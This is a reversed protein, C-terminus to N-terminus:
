KWQPENTDNGQPLQFTTLHSSVEDMALQFYGYVADLKPISASPTQRIQKNRHLGHGAVSKERQTQSPLLSPPVLGIAEPGKHHGSQRHPRTAGKRGGKQLSATSMKHVFELKPHSRSPAWNENTQLENTQTSSRASSTRSNMRLPLTGSSVARAKECCNCQEVVTNPFWIPIRKLMELDKFSILMEKGIATTSIARIDAWKGSSTSCSLKTTEEVLLRRSDAVKLTPRVLKNIIIKNTTKKEQAVIRTRRSQAPKKDKPKSTGRKQLEQM